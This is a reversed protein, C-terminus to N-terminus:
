APGSGGAAESAVRRQEDHGARVDARHAYVLGGVGFAATLALGICALVVSLVTPLSLSSVVFLALVVVALLAVVFAVQPVSNQARRFDDKSLRLGQGIPPRRARHAEAENRELIDDLNQNKVALAGRSARVKSRQAQVEREVEALKRESTAVSLEFDAHANAAVRSGHRQRLKELDATIQVRLRALREIETSAAVIEVALRQTDDM